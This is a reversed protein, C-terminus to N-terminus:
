KSDGKVRIYFLYATMSFTLYDRIIEFNFSKKEPAIVQDGSQIGIENISYGKEFQSLLDTIVVRNGREVRLKSLECDITPGGGQEVLEWLSSNYKVRYAGPRQFAGNLIIRILPTAYIVPERLFPSYKEKLTEILRDTTMGKVKLRGIIPFLAYGDGDITYDDSLQTAPSSEAAQPVLQWVKVRIGDGPQYTYSNGSGSYSSQSYSNLPCFLCAMLLLLLYTGIGSLKSQKM